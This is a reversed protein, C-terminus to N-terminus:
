WRRGRGRGARPGREVRLTAYALAADHRGPRRRRLVTAGAFAALLVLGLIAAPMAGEDPARYAVANASSQETAHEDEDETQGVEIPSTIPSTGSPPTPPAPPPLPV